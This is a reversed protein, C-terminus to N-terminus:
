KITFSASASDSPELIGQGAFHALGTGVPPHPIFESMYMGTASTVVTRSFGTGTITITAGAVGADTCTDALTGSIFVPFLAQPNTYSLHLTLVTPHSTSTCPSNPASVFGQTITSLPSFTCANSIGYMEGAAQCTLEQNTLVNTDHNDFRDTAFVVHQVSGISTLIIIPVLGIVSSRMLTINKVNYKLSAYHCM